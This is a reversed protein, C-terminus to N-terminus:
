YNNRTANEIEKESDKILKTLEQKKKERDNEDLIDYDCFCAWSELNTKIDNCLKQAFDIIGYDIEIVELEDRDVIVYGWYGNLVIYFDSGEEDGYLTAITNNKIAIKLTNLWDFAIDTTYSVRGQFKGLNVKAWGYM